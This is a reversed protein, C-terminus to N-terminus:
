RPTPCQPSRGSGPTSLPAHTLTPITTTWSMGLAAPIKLKQHEPLYEVSVGQVPLHLNRSTISLGSIAEM